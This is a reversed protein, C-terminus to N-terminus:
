SQAMLVILLARVNDYLFKPVQSFDIQKQKLEMLNCSAYGQSLVSLIVGLKIKKHFGGRVGGLGLNWLLRIHDRKEVVVFVFHLVIFSVSQNPWDSLTLKSKSAEKLSGPPRQLQKGQNLSKGKSYREAEGTGWSWWSAPWSRMRFSCHFCDPSSLSNFTPKFTYYETSVKKIVSPM